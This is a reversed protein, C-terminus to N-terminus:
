CSIKQIKTALPTKKQVTKYIRQVTHLPVWFVKFLSFQRFCLSKKNRHLPFSQTGSSLTYLFGRPKM